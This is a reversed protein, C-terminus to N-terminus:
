YLRSIINTADNQSGKGLNNLNHRKPGFIAGDRIDGTKSISKRCRNTKDDYGMYLRLSVASRDFNIAPSQTSNHKGTGKYVTM